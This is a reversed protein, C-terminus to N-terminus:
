VGDNSEGSEQIVCLLVGTEIAFFELVCSALLTYANIGIWM